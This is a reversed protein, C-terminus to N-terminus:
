SGSGVVADEACGGKAGVRAQRAGVKSGGSNNCKMWRATIGAIKPTAGHKIGREVVVAMRLCWAVLLFVVDSSRTQSRM